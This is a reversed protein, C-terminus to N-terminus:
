NLTRNGNGESEFHLAALEPAVPAIDAIFQILYRAIIQKLDEGLDEDGDAVTLALQTPLQLWVVPYRPAGPYGVLSVLGYARAGVSHALEAAVSDIDTRGLTFALSAAGGEVLPVQYERYAVAGAPLDNDNM